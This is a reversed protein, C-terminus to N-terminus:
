SACIPTGTSVSTCSRVRLDGGDGGHDVHQLRRGEQAALGIEDAGHRRLPLGTFMLFPWNRAGPSMFFTTSLARAARAGIAPAFVAEHGALAARAEAVVVQHGVHAAQGDHALGAARHHEVGGV